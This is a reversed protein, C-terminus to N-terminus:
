LSGKTSAYWGERPVLAGALARGFGKFTAECLHHNNFGSVQQIHLNIQASNSVAQFFERVCECSLEGLKERTFRIGFDLYARGCLDLATLVLADDMPTHNSAYRTIAGGEYAKRIASGLAHGVDEVTHHDDIHLDGSVKLDLQFGGHHAFQHLMHDFFGIGTQISSQGNAVSGLVLEIQTEKTQRSISISDLKLEM